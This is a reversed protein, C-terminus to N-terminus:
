VLYNPSNTPSAYNTSPASVFFEFSLLNTDHLMRTIVEGMARQYAADGAFEAGSQERRLSTSQRNRRATALFVVTVITIIALMILTLVLAVGRRSGRAPVGDIEQRHLNRLKM